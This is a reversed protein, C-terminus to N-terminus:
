HKTFCHHVDKWFLYDNASNNIYKESDLLLRDFESLHIVWRALLVSPQHVIRLVIESLTNEYQDILHFYVYDLPFYIFDCIYEIYKQNM